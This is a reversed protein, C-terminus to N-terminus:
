MQRRFNEILPLLHEEIAGRDLRHGGTFYHIHKYYRTYEESCDITTDDRGFLGITNDIECPPLNDFQKEELREYRNCLEDTILYEMVGDARQSFFQNIGRKARMSRSVHFSPNVLIKCYGHFKQAFMGGMSTGIIIDVEEREVLQRLLLFAEFPDIPLDPSFIEDHPLLERLTAATRSQGSSSLGHIYLIKM